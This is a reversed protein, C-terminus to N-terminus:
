AYWTLLAAAATSARGTADPTADQCDHAATTGVGFAVWAM